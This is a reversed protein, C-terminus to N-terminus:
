PALREAGVASPQPVKEVERYTPDGPLPQGVTLHYNQPHFRATSRRGSEVPARMEFERIRKRAFLNLGTTVVRIEAGDALLVFLNPFGPVTLGPQELRRGERGRVVSTANGSALVLFTATMTGRSTRLRWWSDAAEWHARHLDTEFRLHQWVGSEHARRRLQRPVDAARDLLVFDGRGSKALRIGTCLGASGTGVIVVTCHEPLDPDIEEVDSYISSRFLWSM